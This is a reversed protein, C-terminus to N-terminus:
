KNEGNVCFNLGSELEETYILIEGIKQQTTQGDKPYPRAPMQIDCKVPIYVAEKTAYKNACGSVFLASIFLIVIASKM